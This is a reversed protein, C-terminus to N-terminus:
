QRCRRALRRRRCWLLVPPLLFATLAGPRNATRSTQCTCGSAIDGSVDASGGRSDGGTGPAGGAGAQSGGAATASGGSGNGGTATTGGTAESGGSGLNTTGGTAIVGGSGASGGSAGTDRADAGTDAGGRGGADRGGNGGSAVVGGTGSAGPGDRGADARTSGGTGSAGGSGASGGSGTSGGAGSPDVAGTGHLTTVSQADLSLSLSGNSLSVKGDNALSKSSSTTFRDYSSISSGNISVTLSKATSNTNVIVVVVDSSGKFASVSVGSTPSKTADVRYFGPRVFKSWHAMCYGRKTIAGNNIPGYSRKIYWWTYVNFEAEVMSNHVDTAVNLANPWQNADTNSDTYHETMWREKGAPVGKQDFLPYPLDRVATGYTHAGLIDWNALAKEDNLLQDYMVKRYQFSEGTMLRTTIQAGYNVIFDHVATASWQRWDGYDPENQVSIAFLEAGQDKMYSVFSNLHDAYSAFQSSDMTGASNWPSAYVLGGAAIAAKATAVYSSVSTNGDPVAIRLVTFGLQGDANGFVLTREAATLDGAWPIHVMGGFGRVYQKQSTVDVTATQARAESVPVLALVAGLITPVRQRISRM